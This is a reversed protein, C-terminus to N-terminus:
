PSNPPKESARPQSARVQREITAVVEPNALTTLDGPPLGNSIAALVRRLIKGSRTKPMDPVIWVRAPRAIKGITLEIARIVEETVNKPAPVGPRLSLYVEPLRGKVPDAVPVVAAEAAYPLTLCASEIEKTGLRHGAVNIVDDLRGLIRIYGDASQVAGDGSFYPWDKWDTSEPARHFRRYYTEVYREPDGWITAMQGPWPHPIVLAGARHSGPPIIAGNEDLVQPHIGLAGPGASGPKMPDLGPATACLIGGTETQWWADELAARGGGVEDFYWHWTEPEIPEGVTTLLRFKLHHRSPGQPALKRLQRIATPSTHFITVGLREAIRWPREADPYTPVGEYIVVRGGLALPGYVIYTHGTIWGIDAMCWYVDQPELDQYYYTTGAAYALYGGLNHQVGKPRGTTGSTYMLFLPHDSPLDTPPQRAGQYSSLAEEMDIETGTALPTSATLGGPRRSLVLVREPPHGQAKATAYATRSTERLDVWRGNRYFGDMTILLRSQSDAIRVGCAEGSFGSFVVSHPLGLRACALMAIPLEPTMPLHLTVREGPRMGLGEHLYAAMANVRNYLDDYTLTQPDTAEDEAVFILAPASGRAARHRDVCNVSANLRGGVFWRYFPPRRCDLTQEWRRSWTLLDAYRDFCQPFHRLGFQERLTPDSLHYRGSRRRPVAVLDEERWHVAIDAESGM